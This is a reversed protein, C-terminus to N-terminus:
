LYVYICGIEQVLPLTHSSPWSACTQGCTPRQYRRWSGSLLNMRFLFNTNHKHKFSSSFDVLHVFLSDNQKWPEPYTDPTKRQDPDPKLYRQSRIEPGSNPDFNSMYNIMLSITILGYRMVFCLSILSWSICGSRIKDQFTLDPDSIWFFIRVYLTKDVWKCFWYPM